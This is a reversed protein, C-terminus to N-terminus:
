RRDLYALASSQFTAPLKTEGSPHTSFSVATAKWPTLKEHKRWIFTTRPIGFSPHLNDPFPGVPPWCCFIFTNPNSFSTDSLSLRVAWSFTYVTFAFVLPSQQLPFCPLSIFYVRACLHHQEKKLTGQIHPLLQSKRSSGRNEKLSM